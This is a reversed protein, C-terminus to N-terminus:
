SASSIASITVFLQAPPLCVEKWSLIGEIKRALEDRDITTVNAQIYEAIGFVHQLPTANMKQEMAGEHWARRSAQAADEPLRDEARGKFYGVALDEPLFRSFDVHVLKPGSYTSPPADM